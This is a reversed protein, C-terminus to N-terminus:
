DTMDQLAGKRWPEIIVKIHENPQMLQAFAEPVKDIGVKATCMAAWNVQGSAIYQLSQAFEEASYYYSFTIDLEKVSAYGYNVQTDATHIGTIVLKTRQPCRVIFSQILQHVGVCEFIVLQSETAQKTAFAVEDQDTPDVTHTAGFSMAIDRKSAMPDSAIITKVGMIRLCAIVALGIPGCGAVLATDNVTILSRNVSHLGVALPETIAAAESPVDDPIVLLLAEDVIFYESYAGNLGPTVGVGAGGMTMLIPVCTVRQGISITKQTDPGYSVLEAAFEHGLDISPDSPADSPMVGLTKYIDFVEDSHKTIHLDSGCIGCALSKVLVQGPGPTPILTEDLLIKGGQMKISQMTQGSLDQHAKIM